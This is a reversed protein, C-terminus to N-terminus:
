PKEGCYRKAVHRVEHGVAENNDIAIAMNDHSCGVVEGEYPKGDDSVLPGKHCLVNVYKYDAVVVNVAVQCPRRQVSACSIAFLSIIAILTKM